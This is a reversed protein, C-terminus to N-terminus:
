VRVGKLVQQSEGGGVGGVGRPGRSVGEELVSCGAGGGGGWESM